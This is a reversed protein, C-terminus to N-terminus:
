KDITQSPIYHVGIRVQDSLATPRPFLDVIMAQHLFLAGTMAPLVPNVIGLTEIM